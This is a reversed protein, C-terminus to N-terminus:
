PCVDGLMQDKQFTSHNVPILKKVSCALERRSPLFSRGQLLFCCIRELCQVGGVLNWTVVDRFILTEVLVHGRRV